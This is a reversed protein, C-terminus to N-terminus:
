INIINAHLQGAVLESYEVYIWQGLLAQMDSQGDDNVKVTLYHESRAKLGSDVIKEPL